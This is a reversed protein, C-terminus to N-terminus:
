TKEGPRKPGPRRKAIDRDLRRELRKIFGSGGLPRGTTEAKRIAMAENEGLGSALMKRWQAPGGILDLMPKVSVLGDDKGTLHAAASSWRWAEPSKVLRARVPNLEVYRVALFTHEEDMPASAFRGQWLFGRWGERLNIERTYRRHAEGLARGLGEPRKPVLILHVHNPMLCYAWVAVDELACYEAVLSKYLKYDGDSFFTTQRRNGRQTVHHPTGPAIIRALRAM